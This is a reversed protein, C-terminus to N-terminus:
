PGQRNTVKTLIQSLAVSCWPALACFAAVTAEGNPPGVAAPGPDVLLTRYLNWEQIKFELHWMVVLDKPHMWVDQPDHRM